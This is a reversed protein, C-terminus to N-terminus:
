RAKRNRFALGYRKMLREHYRIVMIGTRFMNGVWGTTASLYANRGDNAKKKRSADTHTSSHKLLRRTNKTPHTTRSTPHHPPSAMLCFVIQFDSLASQSYVIETEGPATM